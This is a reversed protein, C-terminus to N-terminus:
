NATGTLTSTQTGAADTVSVTANKVGTTQATLPKFQVSILCSSGPALTVQGLAQGGGAPGCTSALRVVRFENANAGGLVGQAIGTLTANGTNTLTFVQIPDLACALIQAITTGPCNRTVGGYNRSAPTLTASVVAALGTGSLSVPSGSIAVNATITLTANVLGPATPSFVVNITCTAAAPTLTAGCTGGAAGAPRSYLPSSFALAIGTLNATGTNHLTLTRAASTTGDVVNGFALPGGTVSGIPTAPGAAFEVAGADVFSNTKRLTGFFDTSPAENFNATATSPILNIVSSGSAPSYNGLTSCNVANTLALPGWSINIWNNGEDVTASPTLNFIPNPVTADSIGPPVQYGLSKFEPPTRSGNCYQSLVTPNSGTNHLSATSYDAVDTLVSYSPALTLGGSHNTTNDPDSLGTRFASSTTRSSVLLM